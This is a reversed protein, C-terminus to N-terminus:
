LKCSVGTVVVSGFSTSACAYVVATRAAFEYALNYDAITEITIGSAIVAKHDLLFQYVQSFM